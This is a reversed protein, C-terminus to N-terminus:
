PWLWGFVGATLLGYIMGDVVDKATASWRYGFWIANM